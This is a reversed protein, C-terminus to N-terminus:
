CFVNARFTLYPRTSVSVTVAQITERTELALSVSGTLNSGVVVTPITKGLRPDGHVVLIAWPKRSHNKIDYSFKQPEANAQAVPSPPSRRGSYVPLEDSQGLSQLASGEYSPPNMATPQSLIPDAMYGGDDICILTLDQFLVRELM